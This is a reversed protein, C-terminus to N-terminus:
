HRSSFNGLPRMQPSFLWSLACIPAYVWWQASKIDATLRHHRVTSCIAGHKTVNVQIWLASIQAWHPPSVSSLEVMGFFVFVLRFDRTATLPFHSLVFFYFLCGERNSMFPKPFDEFDQLSFVIDFFDWIFWYVSVWVNSLAKTNGLVERVPVSSFLEQATKKKQKKERRASSYINLKNWFAGHNFMRSIKACEIYFEM